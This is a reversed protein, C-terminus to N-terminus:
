HSLGGLIKVVTVTVVTLSSLFRGILTQSTGLQGILLLCVFGVPRISFTIGLGLIDTIVVVINRHVLDELASDLLEEAETDVVRGAGEASVVRTVDDELIDDLLAEVETDEVHGAGVAYLVLVVEGEQQTTYM